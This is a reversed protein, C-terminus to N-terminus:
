TRQYCYEPLLSADKICNKNMMKLPEGAKNMWIIQFKCSQSGWISYEFLDCLCKHYKTDRRSGFVLTCLCIFDNPVKTPFHKSMLNLQKHLVRSNHHTSTLWSANEVMTACESGCPTTTNTEPWRPSILPTLEEHQISKRSCKVVFLLRLAWM